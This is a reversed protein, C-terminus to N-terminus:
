IHLLPQPGAFRIVDTQLKILSITWGARQADAFYCGTGVSLYLSLHSQHLLIIVQPLVCIFRCASLL